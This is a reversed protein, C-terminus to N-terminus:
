KNREEILLNCYYILIQKTWKNPISSSDVDWDYVWRGDLPFSFGGVVEYFGARMQIATLLRQGGKFHHLLLFEYRTSDGPELVVFVPERTSKVQLYIESPPAGDATNWNLEKGAWLLKQKDANPNTMIGRPKYRHIIKDCTKCVTTEAPPTIYRQNRPTYTFYWLKKGCVSLYSNKKWYHLKTNHPPMFWGAYPESM